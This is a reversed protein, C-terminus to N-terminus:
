CAYEFLGIPVSFVYNCHINRLDMESAQVAIFYRFDEFDYQYDNQEQIIDFAEGATIWGYLNVMATVYEDFAKIIDDNKHLHKEM